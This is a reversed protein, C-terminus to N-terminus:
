SKKEGRNGTKAMIKGCRLCHVHRLSSESDYSSITADNLNLNSAINPIIYNDVLTDPYYLLISGYEPDPGVEKMTETVAQKITQKETILHKLLQTTALDTHSASVGGGWSIYVKAGKQIFAEAMTQYKLGDCGMMIITTNNFAGEMSHKIFSPKIGFYIIGREVEETSYAVAVVRDQLQELVYQTISYPESTFLVVPSVKEYSELASHVRLIILDYGHTPLNRYFEVTVEESPYYNVTHGAQKLINTATEIFVPNPGAAPSLSGQDVIAARLQFPQSTTTQNQSPNLYSYILFSSIAIIAVLIAVTIATAIRQMRKKYARIEAKTGKHKKKDKMHTVGLLFLPSISILTENSRKEVSLM